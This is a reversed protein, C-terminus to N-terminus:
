TSLDTRLNRAERLYVHRVQERPAYAHVMVRICRPMAGVVDLERACLLPVDVLGLDRAASAPFESRLDDTATLLISVLDAAGLANRALLERMLEQVAAVIEERTDSAVTTAGRM